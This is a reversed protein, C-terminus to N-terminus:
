LKTYGSTTIFGDLKRGSKCLPCSDSTYYNYDGLDTPKFVTHVPIGGLEEIASFISGIGVIRGGYYTVCEAARALSRGTSATAILILVNCNTVFPQLDNSFTLQNNSNISPTIVHIEAGSNIERGPASLEKALFAGINQTYELCIITDIQTYRFQKALMDATESAMAANTRVETMSIYHDVHAHSTAYHGPYINLKIRRNGKAPVSVPTMLM